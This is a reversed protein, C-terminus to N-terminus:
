CLGMLMVNILHYSTKLTLTTHNKRKEDGFCQKFVEDEDLDIDFAFSGGTNFVQSADRKSYFSRKIHDAVDKQQYDLHSATPNTKGRWESIRKFVSDNLGLVTILVALQLKELSWVGKWSNLFSLLKCIQLNHVLSAHRLGCLELVSKCHNNSSHAKFDFVHRLLHHIHQM